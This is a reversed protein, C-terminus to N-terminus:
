KIHNGARDLGPHKTTYIPCQLKPVWFMLHELRPIFVLPYLLLYSQTQTGAHTVQM